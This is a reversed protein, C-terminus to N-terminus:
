PPEAAGARAADNENESEQEVAATDSPLRFTAGGSLAAMRDAAKQEASPAGKGSTVRKASQRVRM